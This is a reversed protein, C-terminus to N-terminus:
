KAPPKPAQGMLRKMLFRLGANPDFVLGHEGTWAEADEASTSGKEGASKQMDESDVITAQHGVGSESSTEKEERKKDKASSDADGAEKSAAGKSPAVKSQSSAKSRALIGCADRDKAKGWAIVAETWIASQLDARQAAAKADAAISSASTAAQKRLAFKQEAQALAIRAPKAARAAKSAWRKASAAAKKAATHLRVAKATEVKTHTANHFIAREHSEFRKANCFGDEKHAECQSYYNDKYICTCGKLCCPGGGRFNAGGCQGFMGACKGAARLANESILVSVEKALSNNAAVKKARFAAAKELKKKTFEQKKQAKNDKEFLVKGQREAKDRAVRAKVLADMVSTVNKATVEATKARSKALPLWMDKKQQARMVEKSAAETSCEAMGRPPVCQSYFKTHMVCACGPECCSPGTWAKGGCQKFMLAFGSVEQQASPSGTAVESAGETHDLVVRARSPAWCLLFVAAVSAGLALLSAVIALRSRARQPVPIGMVAPLPHVAVGRPDQQATELQFGAPVESYLVRM